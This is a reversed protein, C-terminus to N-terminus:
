AEAESITPMDSSAGRAAPPVPMDTVVTSRRFSRFDDTLQMHPWLEPRDVSQRMVKPDSRKRGNAAPGKEVRNYFLCYAKPNGQLESGVNLKRTQSDNMEYWQNDFRNKCFATYHGGNLDGAHNSIAYLDFLPYLGSKSKVAGSLDWDTVPYRIPTEIKDGRYNFRKLHVILIPPLMWLDLKKTANVHQQCRSCFYQNDGTLYETECFLDLCGDLTKTKKSIPLSLYMFPEFKVKTMHCKVCVITNRLQGQFLDVVISRNRLLYNQWAMIADGEDNTGDGDEDEIYPKNQVRNLDEHIGDLLFALLEQADHQEGGAFDPAFQTLPAYFGSPDLSTNSSLWLQKMLQTYANM